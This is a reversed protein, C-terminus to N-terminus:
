NYNPSGDADIGRDVARCAPCRPKHRVPARYPRFPPLKRKAPRRSSGCRGGCAGTRFAGNTCNPRKAPRGWCPPTAPPVPTVTAPHRAPEPSIPPNPSSEPSAQAPAAPQEDPRARMRCFQDLHKLFQRGLATVQSRIRLKGAATESRLLDSVADRLLHDIMVCQGALMTEIADRPLFAMVSFIATQHRAFRQAETQGPREAVAGALGRLLESVLQQFGFEPPAQMRATQSYQKDRPKNDQLRAADVDFGGCRFATSTGPVAPYRKHRSRRREPGSSRRCHFTQGNGSRACCDGRM